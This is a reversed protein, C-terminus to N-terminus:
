SPKYQKVTQREVITCPLKIEMPTDYRREIQDVLIQASVRGLDAKPIYVTTLMPTVYRSMDIDDIGIISIDDPVHFGLLKLAKMTGIATLDNACFFATPFDDRKIKHRVKEYATDMGLQSEVIYKWSFELGNDKLASHYGRYRIEDVLEGVYGIKKHGHDILYQVASRAAFFGDCTVQSYKFNRQPNLSCYIMFKFHRNLYDLFDQKAKGLVIIGTIREGTLSKLVVPYDMNYVSILYKLTYGRQLVASSIVQSIEIFFPDNAAFPRTTLCALVKDELYAGTGAANGLKLQRASDNPVYGLKRVAKWIKQKTEASARGCNPNNIVRSVTSISLGTELAIDKLTAM